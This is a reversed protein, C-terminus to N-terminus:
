ISHLTDEPSGALIWGRFLFNNLWGTMDSEKRGWPGCCALSGQGEGDGCIVSLPWLLPFALFGGLNVGLFTFEWYFRGSFRDTLFFLFISYFVLCFVHVKKVYCNWRRSKLFLFTLTKRVSATKWTDSEFYDVHWLMSQPPQESGRWNYVCILYCGGSEQAHLNHHFRGSPESLGSGRPPHM